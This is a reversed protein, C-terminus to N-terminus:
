ANENVDFTKDSCNKCTEIRYFLGVFGGSKGIQEYWYPLHGKPANDFNNFKINPNDLYEWGINSQFTSSAKLASEDWCKQSICYLKGGADLYINKQVSFGFKRNSYKIWLEDIKNLHECPFDLFDELYLWDPDNKFSNNNKENFIEYIITFTKTNAEKWNRLKLLQELEEM